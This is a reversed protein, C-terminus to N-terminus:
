PPNPPHSSPLFKLRPRLLPFNRYRLHLLLCSRCPNKSSHQHTIKFVLGSKSVGSTGRRRLVDVLSGRGRKEGELVEDKSSETGEVLSQSAGTTREKALPFPALRPSESVILDDDDEIDSGRGSDVDSGGEMDSVGGPSWGNAGSPSNQMEGVWTRRRGVPRPTAVVPIPVYTSEPYQSASAGGQSVAGGVGNASVAIGAVGVDAALASLRHALVQEAAVPDHNRSAEAAAQSNTISELYAFPDRSHSAPRIRPADPSYHFPNSPRSRTSPQSPLTASSPLPHTSPLSMTSHGPKFTSSLRILSTTQKSIASPAAQVSAIRAMNTRSSRTAFSMVSPQKLDNDVTLSGSSTVLSSSVRSASWSSAASRLSSLVGRFSTVGSKLIDAAPPPPLSTSVSPLTSPAHGSVTSSSLRMPPKSAFYNNDSINEKGRPNLDASLALPSFPSSPDDCPTTLSSLSPTRSLSGSSLGRSGRLLGSSGEGPGSIAGSMAVPGGGIGSMARRKRQLMKLEALDLPRKTAGTDTSTPQSAM